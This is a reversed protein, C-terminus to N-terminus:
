KDARLSAELRLRGFQGFSFVSLRHEAYVFQTYKFACASCITKYIKANVIIPTEKGILSKM